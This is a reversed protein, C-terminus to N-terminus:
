APSDTHSSPSSTSHTRLVERSGRSEEKLKKYRDMATLLLDQLRRIAELTEQEDSEWLHSSINVYMWQKDYESVLRSM